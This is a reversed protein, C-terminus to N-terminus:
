QESREVRVGAALIGGLTDTRMLQQLTVSYKGPKLAYSTLLPFRHDYIDGLGSRGYPKGTRPEFLYNSVLKSALVQGTSDFLFFNIFIRQWKYDVSNRLNCHINYLGSAEPVDFDFRATDNVAWARKEFDKNNEYVRTDDCAAFLVVCLLIGAFTRM